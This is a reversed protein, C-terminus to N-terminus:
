TLHFRFTFELMYNEELCPVSVNERLREGFVCSLGNFLFFARGHKFFEVTEGFLHLVLNKFARFVPLPTRFPLDYM